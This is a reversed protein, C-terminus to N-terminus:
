ASPSAVFGAAQWVFKYVRSMADEVPESELAITDPIAVVDRDFTGRGSCLIGFEAGSPIRMSKAHVLSLMVIVDMSAKLFGLEIKFATVIRDLMPEIKRFHLDVPTGDADRTFAFLMEFAGDRFIMSYSTAGHPEHPAARFAGDLNIGFNNFYTGLLPIMRRSQYDIPDVAIAGLASQTPVLHLILLPGDQIPVPTEGAIIKGIRETRFDRVRQAASQSQLFLNRVEPMDLQRRGNGDRLFFHQNTKVRHPGAWSQPIRIVLAFGSGARTSVSVAKVRVGPIRPEAQSLLLDRIRLTEQDPNIELPCINLARGADSQDMGFIIEGGGANAFASADAALEHKASADWNTPYDRKFELNPGEEAWEAILAELHAQTVENLNGPLSM